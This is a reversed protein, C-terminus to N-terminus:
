IMMSGITVTEVCKGGGDGDEESGIRRRMERHRRGGVGGAGHQKEEDRKECSGEGGIRIVLNPTRIERAQRDNRNGYIYLESRTVRRYIEQNGNREQIPGLDLQM